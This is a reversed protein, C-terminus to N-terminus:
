HVWHFKKASLVSEGDWRYAVLKGGKAVSYDTCVVNSALPTPTGTLWYHGVFVPPADPRYGDQNKLVGPAIAIDPVDDSGLHYGRYTRGNAAEYWKVRVTDRPHGSKDRIQQGPPMRIEPGKLVDEIAAHRDSGTQMADFFFEATFRGRTQLSRRIEDIQDDQWAAHVVRVGNQEIAVPLTRFWAVADALESNSLQDLTAQHQKQNKRSHERFWRDKTGPVATHFAVANFEHNGMVVVADGADVMTRVIRIANAIEPGRDILDGVFLAQRDPHRFGHGHPHYGLDLLLMRLADAHGHIDGIIDFHQPM